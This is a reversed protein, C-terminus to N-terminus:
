RSLGLTRVVGSRTATWTATRPPGWVRALLPAPTIFVGTSPLEGMCSGIVIAPTPPRPGLRVRVRPHRRPSSDSGCSSPGVSPASSSYPLCPRSPCPRAYHAPHAAEPVLRLVERLWGRAGVNRLLKLIGVVALVLRNLMFGNHPMDNRPSCDPYQTSLHTYLVRRSRTPPPM